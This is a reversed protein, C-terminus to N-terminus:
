KKKLPWDSIVIKSGVKKIVLKQAERWDLERILRAPLNINYTYRRRQLKHVNQKIRSM